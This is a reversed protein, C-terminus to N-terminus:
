IINAFLKGLLISVISASLFSLVISIFTYKWGIERVQTSITSICPTYLLIFVSFVFIQYNNMVMKINETNLSSLLIVLSYEKALVGFILPIATQEPLGLLGVTFFSFLANIQNDIKFYILYNLIVTGLILIPWASFVFSKFRIWMKMFINKMSPLRYPPIHLMFYSLRNRSIKNILLLISLIVLFSLLYMGIGWMFGLYGTVLSMIVVTRASCPVFPIVIGSIIRENYNTLGRLSMIAGVNCGLGLVFSLVSRGSIGLPKLFNDMLYMMRPIYGSDELISIFFLFPLLYPIVIGLGGLIGEKMGVLIPALYGLNSSYDDIFKSFPSTIIEISDAITSGLFYALYFTAIIIFFLIVYGGFKHLVFKDVIDDFTPNPKDVSFVLSSLSIIINSKFKLIEDRINALSKLNPAYKEINMLCAPILKCNELHCNTNNFIDNILNKWLKKYSEIIQPLEEKSFCAKYILNNKAFNYNIDYDFDSSDINDPKELKEVKELKEMKEVKEIKEILKIITKLTNEGKISVTPIVPINLIKSLLEIDVKVGKIRAEDFMNLAIVIPLDLTILDLTLLLAHPLTSTDVVQIIGDLKLDDRINTLIDFTVKEALDSYNLSFIGPLDILEIEYNKLFITTLHYEVTTGHYNATNVKYNSLSNFFTSKGSNPQGVLAIRLKKTRKLNKKLEVINGLDCNKCEKPLNTSFELNIKRQIM